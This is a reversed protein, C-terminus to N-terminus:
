RCARPRPGRRPARLPPPWRLSSKLHRFPRARRCSLTCARGTVPSETYSYGLNPLTGHIRQETRWTCNDTHPLEYTTTKWVNVYGNSSVGVFAADDFVVMASGGGCQMVRGVEAAHVKADLYCREDDVMVESARVYAVPVCSSIDPAPMDCPDTSPDAPPPVDRVGVDVPEDDGRAARSRVHLRRRSRRSRHGARARGAHRAPLVHRM